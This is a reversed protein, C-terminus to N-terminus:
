PKASTGPAMKKATECTGNSAAATQATSHLDAFDQLASHAFGDKEKMKMVGFPQRERNEKSIGKSKWMQDM